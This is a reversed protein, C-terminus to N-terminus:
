ARRRRLFPILVVLLCLIALSGFFRPLGKRDLPIARDGDGALVFGAWYFPHETRHDEMLRHQALSLASAVTEGKGLFGYFEDMFRATVSDDVPWLSALVVPAGASLFASTMGLVGEGPLVKGRASACGSLVALRAGLDLAVIESARLAREEGGEKEKGLFLGSRWPHQDDMTVHGALHLIDYETLMHPSVLDKAAYREVGEYTRCLHEVEFLAGALPKGEMDEEGSLALIRMGGSKEVPRSRIEALITVSPVRMLERGELLGEGGPLYLGSLPILNLWSDPVLIIRRAAQILDAIEELLERSL